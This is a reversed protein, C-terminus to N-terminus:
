NMCVKSNNKLQVKYHHSSSSSWEDDDYILCSNTLDPNQSPSLNIYELCGPLSHRWDNRKKLLKPSKAAASLRRLSINPESSIVGDRSLKTGYDSDSYDCSSGGENESCPSDCFSRRMVLKEAKVALAHLDEMSYNLSKM